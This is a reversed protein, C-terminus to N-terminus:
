KTRTKLCLLGITLLINQVCDMVDIVVYYRSAFDLWNNVLYNMMGFYPVTIFFYFLWSLSFWFVPDKFISQTEESNYLKWFYLICLLIVFIGGLVYSYTHLTYFGQFRLTNIIVFVPFLVLFARIMKKTLQESFQFFFFVAIVLFRIDFLINYFFHNKLKYIGAMISGATEALM